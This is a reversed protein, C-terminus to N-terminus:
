YEILQKSCEAVMNTIASIDEQPIIFRFINLNKYYGDNPLVPLVDDDRKHIFGYQWYDDSDLPYDAVEKRIEDMEKKYPMYTIIEAQDVGCIISNSVAQWYEKGKHQGVKVNKIIEIDKTLLADTLQCFAKPYYCKVESTLQATEDKDFSILDPSGAWVKGLNEDPHLVTAKSVITYSMPVLRFVRQEMWKGWAMGQSYSGVDMCRKMRREMNKEEIYSKRPAPTGMLKYMQSSTFRGQRHENNM